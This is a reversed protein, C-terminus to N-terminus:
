VKFDFESKVEDAHGQDALTEHIDLGWTLERLKSGSTKPLSVLTSSNIEDGKKVDKTKKKQKDWMYLKSGFTFQIFNEVTYIFPKGGPKLFALSFFFAVLPIGILVFLMFPLSTYTIFGFGAGGAMYMFQKFTFPGVIRDEIELFQPVQYQM